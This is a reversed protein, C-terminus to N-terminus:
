QAKSPKRHVQQPPLRVVQGGPVSADLTLQTPVQRFGLSPRCYRTDYLSQQPLADHPSHRHLLM